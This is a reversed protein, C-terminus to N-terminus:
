AYSHWGADERSATTMILYSSDKSKTECRNAQDELNTIIEPPQYKMMGDLCSAKLLPLHLSLLQLSGLMSGVNTLCLKDM